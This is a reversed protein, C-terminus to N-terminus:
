SISTCVAFIVASPLPSLPVEELKDFAGDMELVSVEQGGYTDPGYFFRHLVGVVIYHCGSPVCMFSLMSDLLAGMRWM